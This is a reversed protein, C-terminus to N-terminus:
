QRKRKKKKEKEKKKKERYWTIPSVLSIFYFSDNCSLNWENTTFGFIVSKSQNQLMANGIHCGVLEHMSLISFSIVKLMVQIQVNWLFESKISCKNRMCTCLYSYVNKYICGICIHRVERGARTQTRSLSALWAELIKNRSWTKAISDISVTEVRPKWRTTTHRLAM